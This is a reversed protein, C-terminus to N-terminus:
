KPTWYTKQMTLQMEIANLSENGVLLTPQKGPPFVVVPPPPIGGKDLDKILRDEKTMTAGNDLNRVPSADFLSVAYLKGLGPLSSCSNSPSAQPTYTSFFVQNDYTMAEALVKEGSGGLNLYWGQANDYLAIKASTKEDTTGQSILNSTIDYLDAESLLTYTEPPEFVNYDRVSYFRDQIDENLPHARYGSGINISLYANPRNPNKTLVVDPANFFRRDGATSDNPNFDAIRGISANVSSATSEAGNNIDVRLIQAGMDGVYLRDIYGDLNVDLVRVDSPISHNMETLNADAGSPGAWWLREGNEADVIFIARGISNNDQPTASDEQVDYGGGFVLVQKDANNIKLKGLVPRSWTQGLEAYDTNVIGGQIIWKLEPADRTTVDLMYYNDGGRRMGVYLYVHDGASKDITGDGNVDKVWTSISGDLGYPHPETGSNNKLNNLNKLLSQPMFAFEEVGTDTDIAHLYGENTAVFLVSDPNESSGAYTVVVPQSHLPDGMSLRPTDDTNAGRSWKLLNAVTVGTPVTGNPPFLMANTINTNTESLLNNVLTLDGLIGTNVLASADPITGTYTYVNRLIPIKNATGGKTVDPGDDAASWLSRSTTSIAGNVIAPNLDQDLLTIQTSNNPDTGLIFGKVNGPWAKTKAPQFLSFYIENYHTLRNFANITLAPAAMSDPATSMTINGLIESFADALQTSDAASRYLGQGAAATSDLLALDIEGGNGFAITHTNIFQDGSVAGQDNNSLFGALEDLCNGGNNGSGCASSNGSPDIWNNIKTEADTDSVPSGDTLLIIHNSTSCQAGTVIPTKYMDNGTSPSLLVGTDNNSEGYDEEEGRYYLAAEYLTESLPTYGGPTLDDVANKFTLQNGSNVTQMPTIFYGGQSFNFQMVTANITGTGNANMTVIEDILKNFENKVTYLRQNPDDDQLMTKSTGNITYGMSGSTDIVFVINASGSGGNANSYIEIDDAWVPTAVFLTVLCGFLTANPRFFSNRM